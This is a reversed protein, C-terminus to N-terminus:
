HFILEMRSEILRNSKYILTIPRSNLLRRYEVEHGLKVLM